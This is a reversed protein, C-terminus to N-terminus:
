LLRGIKHTWKQQSRSKKRFPLNYTALSLGKEDNDKM